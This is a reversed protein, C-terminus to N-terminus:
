QPRLNLKELKKIRVEVEGNMTRRLKEAKVPDNALQERKREYKGSVYDRIQEPSSANYGPKGTVRSQGPPPETPQFDDPLPALQWEGQDERCLQMKLPLCLERDGVQLTVHDHGIASVTYAGLKDGPAVARRYVASTGDFFAVDGRESSMTGLLAFAEVKVPKPVRAPVPGPAAPTNRNTNFVNRETIVAFPKFGEDMKGAKAPPPKSAAAAPFVALLLLLGVPCLLLARHFKM